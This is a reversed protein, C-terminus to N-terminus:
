LYRHPWLLCPVSVSRAVANAPDPTPKTLDFSDHLAQQELFPLVMVIWSERLNPNNTTNVTSSSTWHSSPPFVKWQSEYNLVALGLQKLNNQCQM